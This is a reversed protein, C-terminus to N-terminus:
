SVDLAPNPRGDRRIASGQRRNGRNLGTTWCRPSPNEPVPPTKASVFGPLQGASCEILIGLSSQWPQLRRCYGAQRIQDFGLEEGASRESLCLFFRPSSNLCPVSARIQVAVKRPMLSSDKVLISSFAFPLNIFHRRHRTGIPCISHECMKSVSRLSPVM